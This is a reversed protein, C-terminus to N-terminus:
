YPMVQGACLNPDGDHTIDSKYKAKPRIDKAYEETYESLVTGSGTGDPKFLVRPLDKEQGGGNNKSKEKGTKIMKPFWGTPGNRLDVMCNIATKPMGNSDIYKVKCLNSSEDAEIVIGVTSATNNYTNRIQPGSVKENFATKVDM